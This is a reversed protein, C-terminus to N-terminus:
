SLAKLTLQARISQKLADNILQALTKMSAKNRDKCGPMSQTSSPAEPFM